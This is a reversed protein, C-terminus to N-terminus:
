EEGGQSLMARALNELRARPDGGQSGPPQGARRGPARKEKPRRSSVRRGEVRRIRQFLAHGQLRPLVQRSLYPLHGAWREDPLGVVLTERKTELIPFRWALDAGVIERWARYLAIRHEARPAQPLCLRIERPRAFSSRNRGSPFSFRRTM